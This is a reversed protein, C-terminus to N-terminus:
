EGEWLWQRILHELYSRMVFSLIWWAIGSPLIGVAQLENRADRYLRRVTKRDSEGTCLALQQRAHWGSVNLYVACQGALDNHESPLSSNSIAVDVAHALAPSQALLNNVESVPLAEPM